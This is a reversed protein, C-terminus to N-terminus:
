VYNISNFPGIFILLTLKKKEWQM